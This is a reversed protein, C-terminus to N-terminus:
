CPSYTWPWPWPCPSAKWPWPSVDRSTDSNWTWFCKACKNTVQSFLLTSHTIQRM